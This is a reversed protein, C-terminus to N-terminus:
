LPGIALTKVQKVGPPPSFTFATPAIVPNPTRSLIREAITIDAGEFKGAIQMQQLTATAPEVFASFTFGERADRYRYVYLPRNDTSQPAGQLDKLELGVAEVIQQSTAQNGVIARRVDPPIQGYIMASFGLWYSEEFQDFESYTMTQYQKLDPRYLWVQKGNSVILTTIKTGPQDPKAFTIESRFQNPHQALTKVNVATQVTTSGVISNVRIESNTEYSSNELFKQIVRALLPLDPTTAQSVRLSAPQFPMAIASTAVTFLSLSAIAAPVFKM